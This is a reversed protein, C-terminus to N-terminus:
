RDVDDKKRMANRIVTGTMWLGLAIVVAPWVIAWPIAIVGLGQLLFAIGLDVLIFGFIIGCWKSSKNDWECHHHKHVTTEMRHGM